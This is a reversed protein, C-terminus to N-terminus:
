KLLAKLQAVSCLAKPGFADSQVYQLLSRRMQRAVPRAALDSHLDISCALLKGAGVKAEFVLALKRNTNWDDIVQVLPRLDPDLDDLIMARSKSVLDWWQWNSHFETPFEALAPHAPDCLIGLTHPPQRNTV